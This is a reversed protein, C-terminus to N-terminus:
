LFGLQLGEQFGKYHTGTSFWVTKAGDDVFMEDVRPWSKSFGEMWVGELQTAVEGGVNKNTSWRTNIFYLVRVGWM